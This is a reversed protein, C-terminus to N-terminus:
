TYKLMRMMIIEKADDAFLTPIVCRRCDSTNYIDNKDRGFYEPSCEAADKGIKNLIACTQTKNEGTVLTEHFISCIDILLPNMGAGLSEQSSPVTITGMSEQYEWIKDLIDNLWNRLLNDTIEFQSRVISTRIGSIDPDFTSFPKKQRGELSVYEVEVEGRDSITISPLNGRGIGYDKIDLIIGDALNRGWGPLKTDLRGKGIHDKKKHIDFKKRAM